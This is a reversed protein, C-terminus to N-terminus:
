NIFGILIPLSTRKNQEARLRLNSANRKGWAAFPILFAKTHQTGRRGSLQSRQRFWIFSAQPESLMQNKVDVEATLYGPQPVFACAKRVNLINLSFAL